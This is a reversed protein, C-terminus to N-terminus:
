VILIEGNLQIWMILVFNIKGDSYGVTKYVVCSQTITSAMM